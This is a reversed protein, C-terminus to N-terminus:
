GPRQMGDFVTSHYGNLYKIEQFYIGLKTAGKCEM